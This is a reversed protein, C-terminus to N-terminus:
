SIAKKLASMLEDFDEFAPIDPNDAKIKETSKFLFGSKGARIMALDNYSDGVAITDIRGIAASQRHFNATRRACKTVPSKVTRLSKLRTASFRRHGLKEILPAAFQTFTDSLIVVQALPLEDLILPAKM